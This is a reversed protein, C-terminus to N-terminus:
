TTEIEPREWGFCPSFLFFCKRPLFLQIYVCAPLDPAGGTSQELMLLVSFQQLLDLPPYLSQLLRGISVPQPLKPQLLLHHPSM